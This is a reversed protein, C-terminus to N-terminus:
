RASHFLPLLFICHSCKGMLDFLFITGMLNLLQLCKNCRVEMSEKETRRLYLCFEMLCFVWEMEVFKSSGFLQIGSFNSACNQLNLM